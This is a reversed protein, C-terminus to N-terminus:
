RDSWVIEPDIVQCHIKRDTCTTSATSIIMPHFDLYTMGSRHIHVQEICHAFGMMVLPQSLTTLNTNNQIIHNGTDAIQDTSAIPVFCVSYLRYETAVMPSM